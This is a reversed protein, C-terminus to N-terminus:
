SLYRANWSIQVEASLSSGATIGITFTTNGSEIVPFVGVPDSFKGSSNMQISYGNTVAPDCQIDLYDNVASPLPAYGTNTTTLTQGDQSQNISISTWAVASKNIMHIFPYSYVNGGGSINIAPFNYISGSLTLAVIGSDYSSSTAAYAFPDYAMFKCTALASILDKAAELKVTAEICDVNRYVRGDEHIMLAQGRLALNQQLADIRSMLDARSSGVIKIQLEISRADIVEGSKKLGERRAVTFTMPKIVPMDVSKSLLSLGLGNAFNNIQYAGFYYATVTMSIDGASPARM